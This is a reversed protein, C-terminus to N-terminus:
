QPEKRESLGLLYDTSLKFFKAFIVIVDARPIRNGNEYACITHVSILTKKALKAQTLGCAKRQERLRKAFTEM